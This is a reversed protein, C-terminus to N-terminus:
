RVTFHTAHSNDQQRSVVRKDLVVHTLKPLDLDVIKGGSEKANRSVKRLSVHVQVLIVTATINSGPVGPCSAGARLLAGM